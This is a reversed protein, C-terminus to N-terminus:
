SEFRATTLAVGGELIAGGLIAGELIAGELIAGELWPIGSLVPMMVNIFAATVVGSMDVDDFPPLPLDGGTEAVM